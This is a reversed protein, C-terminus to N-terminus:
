NKHNVYGKIYVKKEPEYIDNSYITLYRKIAGPRKTDYRVTFKSTKGPYITDKPHNVVTCGCTSKINEIILIDTGLNEIKFNCEAKEGYELKNFDHIEKDLKIVPGTNENMSSFIMFMFLFVISIKM